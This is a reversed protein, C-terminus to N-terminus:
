PKEKLSIAGLHFRDSYKNWKHSWGAIRISLQFGRCKQKATHITGYGRHRGQSYDEM